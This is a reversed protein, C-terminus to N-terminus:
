QEDGARVAGALRVQELRQMDARLPERRPRAIVRLQDAEAGLGGADLQFSV